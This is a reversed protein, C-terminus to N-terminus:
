EHIVELMNIMSVLYIVDSSLYNYIDIMRKIWRQQSDEPMHYNAPNLNRIIEIYTRNYIDSVNKGYVVNGVKAEKNWIAFENTHATYINNWVNELNSTQTINELTSVVYKIGFSTALNDVEGGHYNLIVNLRIKLPTLDYNIMEYDKDWFLNGVTSDYDLNKLEQSVTNLAKASNFLDTISFIESYPSPLFNEIITTIFGSICIDISNKVLESVEEQIIKKEIINYDVSNAAGEYIKSRNKEMNLLKNIFTSGDGGGAPSFGLKYKITNPVKDCNMSSDNPNTHYKMVEEGYSDKNVSNLIKEYTYNEGTSRYRRGRSHM